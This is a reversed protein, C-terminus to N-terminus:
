SIALGFIAVLNRFTMRKERKAIGMRVRRGEEAEATRM